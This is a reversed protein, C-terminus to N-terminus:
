YQYYHNIKGPPLHARNILEPAMASVKSTIAVYMHGMYHIKEKSPDYYKFFLMVDQDKDFSPLSSLPSDPPAVELFVTWTMINDAVETLPKDTDTGLWSPRFTQNM